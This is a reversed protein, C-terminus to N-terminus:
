TTIRDTKFDILLENVRKWTRLDMSDFIDENLASHSVISLGEGHQFCKRLFLFSMLFTLHLIHLLTNEFGVFSVHRYWILLTWETFTRLALSCLACSAADESAFCDVELPVLCGVIIM